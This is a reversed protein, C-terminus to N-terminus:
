VTSRSPGAPSGRFMEEADFGIRQDPTIKIVVRGPSDLHDVFAAQTEKSEPRVRAALAPYFWNATEVDDLVLANGKYTM